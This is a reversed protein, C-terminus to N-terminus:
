SIKNQLAQIVKALKEHDFSGDGMNVVGRLPTYRLWEMYMKETDAASAKSKEEKEIHLYSKILPKLTDALRPDGLLDGFCTNETITPIRKM